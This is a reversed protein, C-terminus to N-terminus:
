ILKKILKTKEKRSREEEEPVLKFEPIKRHGKAASLVMEKGAETLDEFALRRVRFGNFGNKKKM